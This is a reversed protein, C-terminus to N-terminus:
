TSRADAIAREAREILDGETTGLRPRAAAVFREADEVHGTGALAAAHLMYAFARYGPTTHGGESLQRIVSATEGLALVSDEERLLVLALALQEHRKALTSRELTAARALAEYAQDIAGFRAEQMAVESWNAGVDPCLRAAERASARAEDNKGANAYLGLRLMHNTALESPSPEASLFSACRQLAAELRGTAAWMRAEETDYAHRLTANRILRENSFRLFRLLAAVEAWADRAKADQLRQYALIPLAILLWYALSAVVMLTALVLLVAGRSAALWLALGDFAWLFWHSAFSEWVARLPTSPAVTREHGDPPEPLDTVPDTRFVIERMGRSALATRAEELTRASIRGHVERDEADRASYNASPM